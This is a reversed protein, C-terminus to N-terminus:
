INSCIQKEIIIVQGHEIEKQQSEVNNQRHTLHAYTNKTKTKKFLSVLFLLLLTEQIKKPRKVYKQFYYWCPEKVHKGARGPTFVMGEPQKIGNNSAIHSSVVLPLAAFILRGLTLSLSISIHAEAKRLFLTCGKCHNQNVASLCISNKIVNSYILCNQCLWKEFRYWSM